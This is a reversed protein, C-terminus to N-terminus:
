EDRSTDQFSLARADHFEAEALETLGIREYVHGLLLHLTPEDPSAAIAALLERRADQHLREEVLYTARMLVGTTRSDASPITKQLADLAGDIRRAETTTLVEFSARQVPHGEAELVWSYSTGPALPPATAPYALPRPPLNVAQWEPGQASLVRVTYHLQGGGVWEFTVPGPRVRTARPGVIFPAGKGIRRVALSQYTPAQRHGLMAQAVEAMLKRLQQASGEAPPVRVAYPSNASSVSQVGGGGTFVVTARGDGAARIEDGPRLAQLLEPTRWVEEGPRKIRVEGHGKHIETLVAVPDQAWAIGHLCLVLGTAMIRPSWRTIPATTM